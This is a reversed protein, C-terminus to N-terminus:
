VWIPREIALTRERDIQEGGSGDSATSSARRIAPPSHITSRRDERAKAASCRSPGDPDGESLVEGRIQPPEDGPLRREGQKPLARLLDVVGLSLEDADPDVTGLTRGGPRRAIEGHLADQVTVRSRGEVVKGSLGADKHEVHSSVVLPCEAADGARRMNRQMPQESPEVLQGVASQPHV